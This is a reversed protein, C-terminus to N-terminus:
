EISEEVLASLYGPDICVVGSEERTDLDKNRCFVCRM